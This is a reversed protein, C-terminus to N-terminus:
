NGSKEKQLEQEKIRMLKLANLAFSSIEDEKDTLWRDFPIRGKEDSNHIHTIWTVLRVEDRQRELKRNYGKSMLAFERWEMNWFESPRLGMEGFAM